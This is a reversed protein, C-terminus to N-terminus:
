VLTHADHIATAVIEIEIGEKNYNTFLEELNSPILSANCNNIVEEPPGKVM